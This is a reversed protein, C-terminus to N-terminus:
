NLAEVNLSSPEHDAEILREIDVLILTREGVTGLGTIYVVDFSSSFDPAARMQEAGFEGRRM